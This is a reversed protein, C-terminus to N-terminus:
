GMWTLACVNPTTLLSRVSELGCISVCRSCQAVMKSGGGPLSETMEQRYQSDFSGMVNLNGTQSELWYALVAWLAHKIKNEFLDSLILL